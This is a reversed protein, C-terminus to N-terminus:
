GEKIVALMHKYDIPGPDALFNVNRLDISRFEMLIDISQLYTVTSLDLLSHNVGIILTIVQGQQISNAM